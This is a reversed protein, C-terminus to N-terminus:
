RGTGSALGLILAVAALGPLFLAAAVPWAWAPAPGQAASRARLRRRRPSGVGALALVAVLAAFGAIVQPAM